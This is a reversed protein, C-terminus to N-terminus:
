IMSPDALSYTYCNSTIYLISNSFRFHSFQGGCASDATRLFNQQANVMILCTTISPLGLKQSFQQATVAEASTGVSVPTQRPTTYLMVVPLTITDVKPGTKRRGFVFFHSIKKLTSRVIRGYRRAPPDKTFTEPASASECPVM